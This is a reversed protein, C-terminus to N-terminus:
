VYKWGRVNNIQRQITKYEINSLRSAEMVSAYEQLINGEDDIKAIRRIEGANTLGLDFMIDITEPIDEGVAQAADGITNYRDKLKGDFSYNVIYANVVKRVVNKKKRRKKQAM